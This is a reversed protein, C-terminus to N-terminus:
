KLIAKKYFPSIYKECWLLNYKIEDKTSLFRPHNEVDEFSGNKGCGICKGVCYGFTNINPFMSWQHECSEKIGLVKKDYALEKRKYEKYIKNHKKALAQLEAKVKLANM